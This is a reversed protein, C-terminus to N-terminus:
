LLPLFQKRGDLRDRSVPLYLKYNSLLLQQKEDQQLKILEKWKAFNPALRTTKMCDLIQFQCLAENVTM